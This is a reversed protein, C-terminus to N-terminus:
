ITGPIWRALIGQFLKPDVPKTIFDDMGAKRCNQEEEHLANATMAVIPMTKGLSRIRRTSELGDMVPMWMDMLVLDYDASSIKELAEAGNHAIDVVLGMRELLAQAVVQNIENDEVLLVHAGRRIKALTDTAVQQRSPGRRLTATFWFTSGLGPRSTVGAAGGMLEALRRAIALGLGTGGYKRTTGTEAQEFADFIRAQAEDAVGIGTDKVEFRVKLRDGLTEQLEARITISGHETFKVANNVYNILVQRIRLPDGLLSVNELAPDIDEFLALSKQAALDSVMSAAGHITSGIDLLTEELPLRNAEIRSLDLIDNILGLLHTASDSIKSIRALHQTDTVEERLIHALGLIANMPTRIEHSMHALFNSKALTSAEAALKSDLLEQEIEKERTIDEYTGLVGFVEGNEACLPIKSTRLWTTAGDKHTQPEEFAIKPQRSEMVRQDDSRYIEAVEHWSLAYDDKGIVERPSPEGADDAFLQNCGLYRLNRDKWFIRVPLNDLVVQLMHGIEEAKSKQTALEGQAQQLFDHEKELAEFARKKGEVHHAVVYFIGAPCCAFNLFYFADEVLEPMSAAWASVRDDVLVSIAMLAFYAVFWYVAARRKFFVLASIPSYIGWIMVMSSAKFGGLSWMLIFPLLLILVLQSYKLFGTRRTVAAHVLSLATIGAYAVPILGPLTRGLLMLGTGWLIAALGCSWAIQILAADSKASPQM